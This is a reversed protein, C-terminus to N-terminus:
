SRFEPQLDDLHEPSDPIFRISDGDPRKGVVTLEGHFALLFPAAL